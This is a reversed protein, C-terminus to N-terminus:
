GKKAIVSISGDTELMAIHVEDASACGASRLATDLEHQTIKTHQLAKAFLKGNHILVEPRGEVLTEMRKSKYTLLGVLWNVGVLTVASVVGATISNDGGNMANQVANSLVLLLVLDFPAMQGIQRKGTLRLLVILFFYVIIGRLVFEWWPLSIVWM